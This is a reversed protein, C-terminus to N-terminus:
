DNRHGTLGRFWVDTLTGNADDGDLSWVMAGGLENHRVFAAKQAFVTADDFTWFNTGDYLWAFGARNDRFLTFKSGVLGVLDKYNNVGAEVAGAAPGTSPQFLGHNVDPVGTWGRSYYPMGVVIEHRPAGRKLWADVTSEVTFDHAVPDGAPQRLASQQNTQSEWTGHFDYGQVTAFDLEHFIKHSEFGADINVPNAPLFATLQFHKHVKRGYADLQDRFERLLKTFNAKDEPRSTGGILNNAPWEWDIDFGDFVGAAVGPGGSPDDALQPLNGKIFLDICSAVFAQRSQKTLAADSFFKSWTFGGLSMLVKLNPHRAKLKRLQLFNGALPQGWSDAVGDVADDATAPRQYDAWADGLGAANVEFCKGDSSVNGFAYNIHTLKAAQGSTEVRKVFNGSYIGWQTFYGVRKFQNGSRHDASAGGAAATGAFGVVGLTLVTAFVAVRRPLHTRM